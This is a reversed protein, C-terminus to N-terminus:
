KEPLLANNDPLNILKDKSMQEIITKLMKALIDLDAKAGIFGSVCTITKGARNKRDLFVRLNQKANELTEEEFVEEKGLTLDKNTSYVLGSFDNLKKM